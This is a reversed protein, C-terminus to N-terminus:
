SDGDKQKLIGELVHERHMNKIRYIVDDLAQKQWDQLTLGRPLTVKVPHLESHRIAELSKKTTDMSEILDNLRTILEKNM